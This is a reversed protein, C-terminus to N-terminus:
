VVFKALVFCISMCSLHVRVDFSHWVSVHSDKGGDLEGDEGPDETILRLVGEGMGVCGVKGWIISGRLGSPDYVFPIRGGPPHRRRDYM